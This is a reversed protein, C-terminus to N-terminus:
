TRTVTRDDDPDRDAGDPGGPGGPGDTRDGRLYQQTFRRTTGFATVVMGLWLAGLALGGLVDTLWHVGLYLRSGAVMLVLLVAAAWIVVRATWSRVVSGHLYALAGYAVCAQTVHGSPFSFGSAGTIAYRDPPRPREVLEKLVDTFLMAGGFAVALFLLVGWRRTRVLWLMGVVGLLPVLVKGSGAWTVADMVDTFTGARHEALYRAVPRDVRVSDTRAVVDVALVSFAWGALIVFALGMTLSLGFPHDIRFRAQLFRLPGGFNRRVWALPRWDGVRGALRRAHEPNRAVWRAVGIVVVTVVVFALIVLGAGEAQDAVREYANGAFFGITVFTSAWVVGGLANWFLFRRYPMRTIGAMAPVVSRVVAVFRGFFIAKGGREVLYREASEWREQGIARGVRTRRIAPGLRRGIEYGISDGLVAGAVAVVLMFPLDANGQSVVFGGVIMGTEGPVVLGAGLSSEAAALLGVALYAWPGGLSGVADFLREVM